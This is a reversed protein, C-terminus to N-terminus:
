INQKKFFYNFKQYSVSDELFLDYISISFKRCIKPVKSLEASLLYQLHNYVGIVNIFTINPSSFFFVFLLVCFSLVSEKMKRWMLWPNPTTCSVFPCYQHMCSHFLNQACFWTELNPFIDRLWCTQKFYSGIAGILEKKHLKCIFIPLKCFM